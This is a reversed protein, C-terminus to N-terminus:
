MAQDASIYASHLCNLSFLPRNWRATAPRAARENEDRVSVTPAQRRKCEIAYM